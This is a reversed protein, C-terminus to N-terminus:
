ARATGSTPRDPVRVTAYRPGKTPTESRCGGEAAPVVFIPTWVPAKGVIQAKALLDGVVSLLEVDVPGLKAELWAGPDHIRHPDYLLVSRPGKKSRKRYRALRYGPLVGILYKYLPKVPTDGLLPNVPTDAEARWIARFANRAAEANRFMGPFAAAMDAYVGPVAGQEAAMYELATPQIAPWATVEDVVLPLCVNTVVDVELPDNATRNVGRGRGIAQLLGAECIAWRLEEAREDPHANNQVAIGTGDVLRLGRCVVEWRGGIPEIWEGYLARASREVTAPNPATRGVVILVAIDRWRDIGTIDNFHATEVNGPLGLEQLDHELRQQCIVLVRGRASAARVVLYRRLRETNNRRRRNEAESAGKTPILMNATMARDRIQRVRVHPSNVRLTEVNGLRPLYERAARVPMTADLVLVPATLWSPHINDRWCMYIFDADGEGGELAARRLELWPSRDGDMDISRGLVAWFQQLLWLRANVAQARKILPLVANFSLGPVVDKMEDKEHWLRVVEQRCIDASVVKRLAPLSLSLGAVQVGYWGSHAVEEVRVRLENGIDFGRLGAGYFSEDITLGTHKGMWERKLGFLLDHPVV